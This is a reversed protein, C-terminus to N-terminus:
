RGADLPGEGPITPGTCPGPGGADVSGCGPDGISADISTGADLPDQGGGGFAYQVRHTNGYDDILTADFSVPTDPASKTPGTLVTCDGRKGDAYWSAAGADGGNGFSVSLDTAIGCHHPYHPIDARSVLAIEFTTYGPCVADVALAYTPWQEPSSTISETKVVCLQGDVVLAGVSADLAGSSADIQSDNAFLQAKDTSGGGSDATNGSCAMLSVVSTVALGALATLFFLQRM